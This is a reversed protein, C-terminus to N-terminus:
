ARARRLTAYAGMKEAGRSSPASGALIKHKACVRPDGTTPSPEQASPAIIRATPSTSSSTDLTHLLLIHHIKRANQSSRLVLLTTAARLGVVLRLGAVREWPLQADDTCAMTCSAAPRRVRAARRAGCGARSAGEVASATTKRSHSWLFCILKQVAFPPM